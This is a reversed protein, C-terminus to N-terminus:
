IDNWAMGKFQEVFARLVAMNSDFSAQDFDNLKDKDEDDDNNDSQNEIVVGKIGSRSWAEESPPPPPLLHLNVIPCDDYKPLIREEVIEGEEEESFYLETFVNEGRIAVTPSRITVPPITVTPILRPKNNRGAERQKKEALEACARIHHGVIHCYACTIQRSAFM